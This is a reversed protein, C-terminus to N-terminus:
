LGRFFNDWFDLQKRALGRRVGIDNGFEILEDQEPDYRPWNPLGDGNPDGTRAFNVWYASMADSLQRDIADYPHIGILPESPPAVWPRLNSFVHSIEAAHYAGYRESSPGPPVRSFYYLYVATGAAAAARAWTRMQWTFTRHSTSAYHSKIAQKDDEAPYVALFDDAAKGYESRTAERFAAASKPARIHFLATGEDANSGILVPVQNYRGASFLRRVEEPFVWGEVSPRSRFRAPSIAALLDAASKKRMASLSDGGAVEFFRRGVAEASETNGNPKSLLPMPDFVGGSEGIAGHFLNRALPTAMLYCVSWSGASEGFITVRNPDGGFAAINRQVWELAAIQDLIGYAGSSGHESERSLESHALFGFVNLRYNVTVVVVGKRALAAGDYTPIATSGNNLGGGHIWVMVPRREDATRAATWVNLYLCDESRKSDDNAYFRYPPPYGRQECALPPENAKRLGQWKAPRQPPKWRLDNVPLAAYPIGQYARVDHAVGIVEGQLLGTDISLPDNWDAFCAIPLLALIPLALSRSMAGRM